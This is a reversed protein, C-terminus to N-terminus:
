FSHRLTITVHSNNRYGGFFDGKEGRIWGGSVTARLHQGSAQSYEARLWSGGLNQRVAGEVSVSRNADITYGARGVLAKALGREPAFSAEERRTTVFEGAYGAVVFWEGAQREVQLVYLCYDDSRADGSFYAAEAKLTFASLPLAGDGGVMWIEPYAQGVRIAPLGALPDVSTRIGPVHAFGRYGSVSWEIGTGIRSWRAGVQAGEPVTRGADVFRVGAPAQVDPAWRRNSLPVRSPTLSPVWVVDVTDAGRELMVRAATVALLDADFVNLYDRPAFRDTPNLVDTKGWRVFQKGVDVTLPGRTLSADFRRLALRPRQRSRDDWSPQWSAATLGDTDARIDVAGTVRLWPLPKAAAEYRLLFETVARTDDNPADQPYVVTRAELFGKQSISQAFVPSAPGPALGCVLCAVTAAVRRATM